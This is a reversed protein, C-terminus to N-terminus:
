LENRIKMIIKGLNNEGTGYCIGWFRDGWFNGEQIEQTGTNKLLKKLESNQYKLRTIDEMVKLKIKDWDRRLSVESGVKKAQSATKLLAIEQRKKLDKTKSAQYAHETTPYTIDEYVIQVPHFNSLWRYEKNFEKIM